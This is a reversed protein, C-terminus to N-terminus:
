WTLPARDAILQLVAHRIRARAVHRGAQDIAQDGAGRARAGVPPRVTM